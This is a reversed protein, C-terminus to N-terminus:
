GLDEFFISGPKLGSVWLHDRTRTCAVYLMYREMNEFDQLDTFHGQEAYLSELPVVSM